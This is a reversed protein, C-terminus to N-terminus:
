QNAHKTQGRQHRFALVYWLCSWVGSEHSRFHTLSDKQFPTGSSQKQTTSLMMLTSRTAAEWRARPAGGAIRCEIFDGVGSAYKAGHCGCFGADMSGSLALGVLICLQLVLGVVFLLMCRHHEVSFTYTRCSRHARSSWGRCRSVIAERLRGVRRLCNSLVEMSFIM